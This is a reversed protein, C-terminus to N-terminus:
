LLTAGIQWWFSDESTRNQRSVRWWLWAAAAYGIVLLARAATSHEPDPLAYLCFPPASVPPYHCGPEPFDVTTPNACSTAGLTKGEQSQVYLCAPVFTSPGAVVSRGPGGIQKLYRQM